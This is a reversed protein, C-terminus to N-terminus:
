NGVDGSPAANGDFAMIGPERQDPFKHSRQHRRARREAYRRRRDARLERRTKSREEVQRQPQAESTSTAQTSLQSSPAPTPETPVPAAVPSSLEASSPYVIRTPAPPESSTHKQAPTGTTTSNAMLIGGGFGAALIAFTTGVGAFFIRASSAMTFIELKKSRVRSDRGLNRTALFQRRRTQAASQQTPLLASVLSRFPM